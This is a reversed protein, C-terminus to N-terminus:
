ARVAQGDRVVVSCGETVDDACRYAGPKGTLACFKGSDAQWVRTVSFTQAM